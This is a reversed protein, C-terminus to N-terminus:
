LCHPSVVVLWMSPKVTGVEQEPKNDTEGKTGPEGGLSSLDECHDWQKRSSGPNNRQLVLVCEELVLWKTTIRLRRIGKKSLM